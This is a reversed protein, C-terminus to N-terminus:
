PELIKKYIDNYKTAIISWDYNEEVFQRAKIGLDKRAPPNRLYKIIKNALDKYDGTKFLDGSIGPKVLEEELLNNITALTIKKLLELDKYRYFEGAFCLVSFLSTYDEICWSLVALKIKKYIINM